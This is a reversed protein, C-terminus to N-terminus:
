QCGGNTCQASVCAGCLNGETGCCSAECTGAANAAIGGKCVNSYQDDGQPGRSDCVVDRKSSGCQVGTECANPGNCTVKCMTGMGSCTVVGSQCANDGTCTVDCSLALSCDVGDKCDNANDCVVRCPYGLPCTIKGDLSNDNFVCEDNVNCKGGAPM